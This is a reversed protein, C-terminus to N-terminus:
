GNKIKFTKKKLHYYFSPNKKMELVTNGDIYIKGGAMDFKAGREYFNMNVIGARETKTFAPNANKIQQATDSETFGIFSMEAKKIGSFSM